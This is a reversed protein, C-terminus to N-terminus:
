GAVKEEEDAWWKPMPAACKGTTHHFVNCIEGSSNSFRSVLRFNNEKLMKVLAKGGVRMQSTNLVVEILKGKRGTPTGQSKIALAVMEALTGYVPNSSLGTGGVEATLHHRSTVQPPSFGYLHRIGCCGGGHRKLIM